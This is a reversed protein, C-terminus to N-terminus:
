KKAPDVYPEEYDDIKHPGPGSDQVKDKVKDQVTKLTGKIEDLSKSLETKIQNFEQSVLLLKGMLYNLNEDLENIKTTVKTVKGKINDISNASGNVYADTQNQLKTLIDANSNMKQHMIGIQRWVQDVEDGIKHTLNTLAGNEDDLLSQEFVDFREAVTTSIDNTATKMLQGMEGLIQHVGYELRRKTDFVNDATKVMVEDVKKISKISNKIEEVNDGFESGLTDTINTLEEISKVLDEHDKTLKDKLDKTKYDIDEIIVQARADTNQNIEKVINKTNNAIKELYENQPLSDLKKSVNKLDNILDQLHEKHETLSNSFNTQWKNQEKMQIEDTKCSDKFEALKKSFKTLVKEEDEVKDQIKSLTDNAKKNLQSCTEKDSKVNKFEKELKSISEQISDVKKNISEKISDLDKKTIEPKPAPPPPPPKDNKKQQALAELIEKKLEDVIQPLLVKKLDDVADFTRMAQLREREDKEILVTEVEAVREDLRNLIGKFHDWQKTRRDISILGRKLTEGLGKERYEHRELKDETARIVNVIQLIADRIDNNTVTPRSPQPVAESVETLVIVFLVLPFVAVRYFKM